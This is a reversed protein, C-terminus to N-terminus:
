TRGRGAEEEEEEEVARVSSTHKVSRMSRTNLRRGKISRM